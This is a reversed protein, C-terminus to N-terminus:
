RRITVPTGLPLHRLLELEPNFVRICGSSVQRGRDAPDDTGHIALRGGGPWDKLVPSFGTLGLAFTGYPGTPDDYDVKVWISFTGVATPTAMSGIGVDLKRVLEDGRFHRLTRSSLDVVVREERELLRAVDDERIWASTGNPRIPLHLRLWRTGAGDVHDDLVLLPARDGSWNRTGFLFAPETVEPEDFMPVYRAAPVAAFTVGEPLPAPLPVLPSPLAASPDPGEAGPVAPLDGSGPTTAPSCAGLLLTLALALSTRRM